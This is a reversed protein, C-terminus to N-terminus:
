DEKIFYITDNAPTLLDYEAQTGVWVKKGLATLYQVDAETKNDVYAKVGGSTVLHDSDATPTSDVEVEVAEVADTKAFFTGKIKSILHGLGTNDLFGM